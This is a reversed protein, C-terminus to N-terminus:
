KIDCNVKENHTKRVCTISVSIIFVCSVGGITTALHSSHHSVYFLICYLILPFYARLIFQVSDIQMEVCVIGLVLQM